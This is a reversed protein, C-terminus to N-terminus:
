KTKVKASATTSQVRAEFGTQAGGNVLARSIYLAFLIVSSFLTSTLLLLWVVFYSRVRENEVM